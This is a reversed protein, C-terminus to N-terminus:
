TVDRHGRRPASATSTRRPLVQRDVVREVGAPAGPFPPAGAGSRLASVLPVLSGDDPGDPRGRRAPLGAETLRADRALPSRPGRGADTLASAALRIAEAQLPASRAFEAASQGQAAGIARSQAILLDTLPTGPGALLVLFAVQPNAIAAIPGVMGGESHGIYGIARRDIDPRAALFAFAANADTAFDASTAGAFNGTSRGIGRDDYRLM